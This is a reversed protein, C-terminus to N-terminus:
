SGSGSIAAQRERLVKWIKRENMGRGGAIWMKCLDEALEDDLLCDVMTGTGTGLDPTARISDVFAKSWLEYDEVQRETLGDRWTDTGVVRKSRPARPAPEVFAPEPEPEPEVSEAPDIVPLDAPTEGDEELMESTVFYVTHGEHKEKGVVGKKIMTSLRSRIASIFKKHTLNELSPFMGARREIQSLVDEGISNVDAYNFEQNEIARLGVLSKLILLQSDSM